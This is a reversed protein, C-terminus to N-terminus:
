RLGLLGRQRLSAARLQGQVCRGDQRPVRGARTACQVPHLSTHKPVIGRRHAQCPSGQQACSATQNGGGRNPSGPPFLVPLVTGLGASTGFPVALELSRRLLPGPM